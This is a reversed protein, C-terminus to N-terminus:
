PNLADLASLTAALDADGENLYLVQTAEMLAANEAPGAFGYPNYTITVTTYEDAVVPANNTAMSWTGRALNDSLVEQVPVNLALYEGQGRPVVGAVVNTLMAPSFGITAMASNPGVRDSNPLYYGADDITRLGIGAVTTHTTSTSAGAISGTLTGATSTGTAIGSWTGSIVGITLTGTTGSFNYGTAGSATETVIEGVAFAVSNTQTVTILAYGTAYSTPDNTIQSAIATYANHRDLTANGTLVAPSTYGRPKWSIALAQSTNGNNGFYIQYRTSAAITPVAAVGLQWQGQVEDVATEANVSRIQNINMPLLGPIRIVSPNTSTDTAIDAAAYTNLM